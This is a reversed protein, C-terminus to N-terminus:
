HDRTIRYPSHCQIPPETGLNTTANIPEGSQPFPSIRMALDKASNYAPEYEWERPSLLDLRAKQKRCWKWYVAFLVITTFSLGIIIGEIIVLANIKKPKSEGAGEKEDKPSAQVTSQSSLSSAASVSGVDQLADLAINSTTQLASSSPSISPHLPPTTTSQNM